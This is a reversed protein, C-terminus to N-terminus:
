MSLFFFFLGLSFPILFFLLTSSSREFIVLEEFPGLSHFLSLGVDSFVLLTCNPGEAKDSENHWGHQHSFLGRGGAQKEAAGRGGGGCGAGM